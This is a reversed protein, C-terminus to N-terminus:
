RASEYLRQCILGAQHADDAFRSVEGAFEDFRGLMEARLNAAQDAAKREAATSAAECAGTRGNARRLRDAALDADRRAADRQERLADAEKQAQDAADQLNREKARAEDKAKSVALAHDAKIGDIRNAQFKWAGTGGIVLGAVLAAGALTFSPSIM